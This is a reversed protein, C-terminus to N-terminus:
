GWGFWATHSWRRRQVWPWALSCTPSSVEGARVGLGCLALRLKTKKEHTDCEHTLELPKRQAVVIDQAIAPPRTIPTPVTEARLSSVIALFGLLTASPRTSVGEEGLGQAAERSM